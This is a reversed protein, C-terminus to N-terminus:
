LLVLHRVVMRLSPFIKHIKKLSVGNVMESLKAQLGLKGKNKLHNKESYNALVEGFRANCAKTMILNYVKESLQYNMELRENCMGQRRNCILAFDSKLTSHNIIAKKAKALSKEGKANIDDETLEKSVINMAKMGWDFYPETVLQLGGNGAVNRLLMTMNYRRAIYEDDVDKEKCMMM